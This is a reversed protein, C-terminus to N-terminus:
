MPTYNIIKHAIINHVDKLIAQMYHLVAGMWVTAM